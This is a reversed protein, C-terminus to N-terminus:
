YFPPVSRRWARLAASCRERSGEHRDSRCFRSGILDVAISIVQPSESSVEGGVRRVRAHAALRVRVRAQGRELARARLRALRPLEPRESYEHLAYGGVFYSAYPLWVKFPRSYSYTSKSYVGFDGAPTKGSAGTSVHVARAVLGGKRVLLLVQRSLSVEIHPPGGHQAKPRPAGAALARVAVGAVGDRTLGNYGQLAVVGQETAYDFSGNVDAAAMYGRDALDQQLVRVDHGSDGSALTGRLGRPARKPHDMGYTLALFRSAYISGFRSLSTGRRARM